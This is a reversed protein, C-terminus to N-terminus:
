TMCRPPFLKSKIEHFEKIEPAQPPEEEVVPINEEEKIVENPIV